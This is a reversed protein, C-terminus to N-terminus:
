HRVAACRALLRVPPSEVVHDAVHPFPAAVPISIIRVTRSCVRCTHCGTRIADIAAPAPVVVGAVASGRDADPALRAGAVVVQAEADSESGAVSRLDTKDKLLSLPADHSLPLATVLATGGAHPLEREAGYAM